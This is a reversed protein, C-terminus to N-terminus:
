CSYRPAVSSPVLLTNSGQAPAPSAPASDSSNGSSSSRSALGSKAYKGKEQVRDAEDQLIKMWEDREADSSACFYYIRRPTEVQFCHKKKKYESAIILRIEEMQIVGLHDSTQTKSYCLEENKLVFYRKKWTKWNGGEKVLFGQHQRDGM